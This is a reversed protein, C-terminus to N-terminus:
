LVSMVRRGFLEPRALESVKQQEVKYLGKSMCTYVQTLMKKAALSHRVNLDEFILSFDTFIWLFWTETFFFTYYVIIDFSVSQVFKKLILFFKMHDKRIQFQFQVQFQLWLVQIM